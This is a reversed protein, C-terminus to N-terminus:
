RISAGPPFFPLHKYWSHNDAVPAALRATQQQAYAGAAVEAPRRSASADEAEATSSKLIEAVESNQPVGDVGRIRCFFGQDM